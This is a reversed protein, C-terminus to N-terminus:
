RLKVKRIVDQNPAESAYSSSEVNSRAPDKTTSDQNKNPLATRSLDYPDKSLFGFKRDKREM